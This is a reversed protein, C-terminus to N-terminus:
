FSVKKKFINAKEIIVNKKQTLQKTLELLEYIKTDTDTISKQLRTRLSKKKNFQAVVNDFYRYFFKNYNYIFNSNM